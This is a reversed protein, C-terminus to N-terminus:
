PNQHTRAVGVSPNPSDRTSEKGEITTPYGSGTAGEMRIANLLGIGTRTTPITTPTFVSIRIATDGTRTIAADEGTAAEEPGDVVLIAVLVIAEELAIAPSAMGLAIAALVAEMVGATDAEEMPM